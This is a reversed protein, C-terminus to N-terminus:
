MNTNLICNQRSINLKISGHNQLKTFHQVRYGTEFIKFFVSLDDSTVKGTGIVYSGYNMQVSYIRNPHQRTIWFAFIVYSNLTSLNDNKINKTLLSVNYFTVKKFTLNIFYAKSADSNFANCRIIIKYSCLFM